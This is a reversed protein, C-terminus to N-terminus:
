RALLMPLFIKRMQVAGFTATVPGRRYAAGSLNFDDLWYYYTQGQQLEFSDDWQYVFGQTSGSGQAGIRSANLKTPPGNLSSARWLDFGQLEQESITEWTVVIRNNQHAAEFQALQVASPPQVQIQYDEVEGFAAQGTPGTVAPGIRFRAFTPQGTVANAPVSVNLNVTGTALVAQNNAIREEAEFSGNGNWDIWASLLPNTTQFGDDAITVIVPIVASEGTVLAPITVGDEDDGNLGGTQNTDDGAANASGQYGTEPDVFAGLYTYRNYTDNNLDKTVDVVHSVSGYSTPADGYDFAEIYTYASVSDDDTPQPNTYGPPQINVNFGNSVSPSAGLFSNKAMKYAITITARSDGPITAIQTAYYTKIAPDYQWSFWASGPGGLADLPNAANPAGKSLTIVLTMQDGQVMAIDDSGANGVDFRLYGTGSFETPLLTGGPGDATQDVFGQTLYPNYSPGQAHVVTAALSLIALSLCCAILAAAKVRRTHDTIIRNM